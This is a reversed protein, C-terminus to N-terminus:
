LKPKVNSICVIEDHTWAAKACLDIEEAYMQRKLLAYAERKEGISALEQAWEVARGLVQDRPVLLDVTGSALAEQPGVEGRALLLDKVVKPSFKALLIQTAGM